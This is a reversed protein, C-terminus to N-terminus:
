NSIELGSALVANYTCTSCMRSVTATIIHCVIAHVNVAIHFVVFYVCHMSTPMQMSMSM